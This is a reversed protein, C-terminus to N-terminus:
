RCGFTSYMPYSPGVVHTHHHTHLHRQLLPSGNLEKPSTASNASSPREVEKTSSLPPSSKGASPKAADKLEHIKHPGPVSSYYHSAHQQLLDLAKGEASIGAAGPSLLMAEKEAADMPTMHYRMATPNMYGSTNAYGVYPGMGPYLGRTPDFPVQGAYQFPHGYFQAASPPLGGGSLLIGGSVARDKGKAMNLPSASKNERTRADNQHRSPTDKSHSSEVPPRSREASSDRVPPSVKPKTLDKATCKEGGGEQGDVGQHLDSYRQQEQLMRQQQFMYFRQVDQRQLEMLFQADYGSAQADYTSPGHVGTSRNSPMQNKLEINEKMIQHNENQKKKLSDSHPPPAVTRKSPEVARNKAKEAQSRPSSSMPSAVNLLPSSASLASTAFSTKPAPSRAPGRSGADNDSGGVKPEVKVQTSSPETRQHPSQGLGAEQRRQHQDSDGKYQPSHSMVPMHYNAYGSSGGGGSYMYPHYQSYLQSQQMMKERHQEGSLKVDSRCGDGRHGSGDIRDEASPDRSRPSGAKSRNGDKDVLSPKPTSQRSSSGAHMPDQSQPVAPVLYPPQGYFPQCIGYTSQVCQDLSQDCSVKCLRDDGATGSKAEVENELTPASDNADSIDSYAPSQVNSGRERMDTTVELPSSISLSSPPQVNAPRVCSPEAGKGVSNTTLDVKDTIETVPAQKQVDASVAQRVDGGSTRDATVMGVLKRPPSPVPKIVSLLPESPRVADPKVESPADRPKEKNRKKKSKKEKMEKLSTLAPNVTTTEGMITPKPQIPKLQSTATFSAHSSPAHVSVASMTTHIGAVPPAPLLPRTAIVSKPKTAVAAAVTVKDTREVKCKKLRDGADKVTQADTTTAITATVVPVTTIVTTVSTPHVQNTSNTSVVVNGSTSVLHNNATVLTVPGICTGPGRSSTCPRVAHVSKSGAMISPVSDRFGIGSDRGKEASVPAVKADDKEFWSSSTSNTHEKAGGSPTVVKRPSKGRGKIITVKEDKEVSESGSVGSKADTDMSEDPTVESPPSNVEQHAHSQHYKLGNLHRYKKNCNPEPCEILEPSPDRVSNATTRLSCRVRKSSKETNNLELDSPRGKRKGTAGGINSSNTIDPSSPTTNGGMNNRRTKRLKRDGVEAVPQNAAM